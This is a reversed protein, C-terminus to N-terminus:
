NGKIKTFLSIIMNKISRNTYIVVVSVLLGIIVCFDNKIEFYSVVVSCLILLVYCIIKYSIQFEILKQLVIHRYIFICIFSITFGISSAYIGVKNILILNIIVSLMAGFLSTYGIQKTKEYAVFVGGQFSVLCSFLVGLFLIPVQYIGEVYERAVLLKYIYPSVLIALSFMGFLFEFLSLYMQSYYVKGDRESIVKVAMQTWALNFVGYLTAFMLPIKIAAAFIGNWDVGLYNTIIFRNSLNVTWLAVASPIIPLSFLLMKKITVCSICNVDYYKYIESLFILYSISCIYAFISVIIINYISVSSYIYIVIVSCTSVLSLILSANAYIKNKDLGRTIQGLVDYVGQFFYLLLALLILHIDINDYYFSAIFSFLILISSSTMSFVLATSIYSNKEKKDDAELLYRFAGQQILLTSVPVALSSVTVVIDYLGYQYKSFSNTLIPILLVSLLKPVLQGFALVITDSILKKSRKM